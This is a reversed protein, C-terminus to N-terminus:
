VLYCNVLYSFEKKFNAIFKKYNKMGTPAYNITLQENAEIDRLSILIAIITEGYQIERLICNPNNDHNLHINNYYDLFLM